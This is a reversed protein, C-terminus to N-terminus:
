PELSIMGRLGFRGGRVNRYAMGMLWNISGFQDQGRDGGDDLFQVFAAGHGMLQWSRVPRHIGYMPSENPLWATGSAERAPFMEMTAAEHQAHGIPRQAPPQHQHQEPDQAAVPASAVAFAAVVISVSIVPVRFVREAYM